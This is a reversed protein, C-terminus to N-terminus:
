IGLCYLLAVMEEDDRRYRAIITEYILKQQELANIRGLMDRLEIQMARNSLDKARHAELRDVEAQQEAIRATVEKQKAEAQELRLKRQQEEWLTKGRLYANPDHNPDRRVVPTSTVRGGGAVNDNVPAGTVIQFASNQYASPQFATFM